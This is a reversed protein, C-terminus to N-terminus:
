VSDEQGHINWITFLYIHTHICLEKHEEIIVKYKCALELENIKNLYNTIM